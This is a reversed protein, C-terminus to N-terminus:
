CGPGGPLGNAVAAAPPSPEDIEGASTCGGLVLMGSRGRLKAPHVGGILVEMDLVSLHM